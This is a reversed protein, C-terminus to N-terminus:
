VCSSSGVGGRDSKAAIWLQGLSIAGDGPPFERPVLVQFGEHRLRAEVADVLCRNQFCGGVLAVAELKPRRARAAQSWALALEVLAGHFRRSIERRALKHALDKQLARLMPSWDAVLLEGSSLPLPYAAEPKLLLEEGPQVSPVEAAFELQLAAQGEFSVM